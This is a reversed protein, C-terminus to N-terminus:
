NKTCNRKTWKRKGKKKTTGGFLQRGIEKGIDSLGKIVEGHITTRKRRKL